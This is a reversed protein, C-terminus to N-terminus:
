QAGGARGITRELEALRSFVEAFRPDDSGSAKVGSGQGAAPDVGGALFANLGIVVERVEAETYYFFVPGGGRGNLRQSEGIRCCRGVGAGAWYSWVEVRGSKLIQQSMVSQGKTSRGVRVAQAPSGRSGLGLRGVDCISIGWSGCRFGVGVAM